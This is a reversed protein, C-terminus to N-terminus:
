PQSQLDPQRRAVEELIAARCADDSCKQDDEFLDLCGTVGRREQEFNMQEAIRVCMSREVVSGDPLEFRARPPRVAKGDVALLVGDVGYQQRSEVGGHEDFVEWTGSPKNHEYHEVRTVKGDAAWFTAKGHLRGRDYHRESRLQGAVHMTARGDPLGAKYIIETRTQAHYDHLVFRGENRGRVVNGAIQERGHEDIQVM